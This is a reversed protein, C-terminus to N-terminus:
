KQGILVALKGSIGDGDALDEHAKPLESWEYVKHIKPLIRSEESLKLFDVCEEPSGAHSGQIRKQYIWLFRLDVTAKYGTTAGCLVVMGGNGCVFLSTALTDSGPHEIVIAPAKNVGSVKLLTNRFKTAEVLWKKYDSDSIDEVSGWHKYANRNIYGQAGLEICFAGKEDSSVVAVPIGGLSKVQQIATSGLGGSGGWILVVDGPKIENGKWHNLMRYVTLGTATCSAAEVWSMSEPKRICQYDHVRSFQAFAGWNGEYGWIHYTPSYEPELGNAILPCKRDYKMGTVCVEDGVKLGKVNEGVAYIIGSSESGCIHFDEKDDGYKGNSLIVNKPAGKAAWIGNYNVGAAMNAVIVEGARPLPTNIIEDKYATLPSGLRENRITWARMRTPIVGLPPLDGVEYLKDSRTYSSM